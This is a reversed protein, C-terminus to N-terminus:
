DIRHFDDQQGSWEGIATTVELEGRGCCAARLIVLGNYTLVFREGDDKPCWFQYTNAPMNEADAWETVPGASLDVGSEKLAVRYIHPLGPDVGGDAAGATLWEDLTTYTTIM